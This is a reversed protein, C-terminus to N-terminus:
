KESDKHANPCWTLPPPRQTPIYDHWVKRSTRSELARNQKGQLATKEAHCATCLAQFTQEAGQCTSHLPAIHDWELDGQLAAGCMNCAHNQDTLVHANASSSPHHRDAGLLTLLVGQTLGPMGEGRWEINIPLRELFAEIADRAHHLERIVCSGTTDYMSKVCMYRLAVADCAGANRLIVKPSRGNLLLQAQAENLGVEDVYFYGPAAKGTSPNWESVPPLEYHADNALRSPTIRDVALHETCAVGANTYLQAHGEWYTLAIRQRTNKTPAECSELMRQGNLFFFSRDQDMCLEELELPTVGHEQWAPELFEDFYGISESLSIGLVNAVQRPICLKDDHTEFATWSISVTHYSHQVAWQVLGLHNVCYLKPSLKM